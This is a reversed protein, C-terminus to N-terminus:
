GCPRDIDMPSMMAMSGTPVASVVGHKGMFFVGMREAIGLLIRARNVVMRWAIHVIGM